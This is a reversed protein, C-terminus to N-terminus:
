KKGAGAAGEQCTGCIGHGTGNAQITACGSTLKGFESSNWSVDQFPFETVAYAGGPVAHITTGWARLGGALPGPASANCTGTSAVLITSIATPLGPTLTNSILDSITSLTKLHNPTLACTCCAIMQQDEAFVYVNACINGAPEMGGTTAANTLNVVSDAITLNSTYGVQIADKPMVTVTGSTATVCKGSYDCSLTNALHVTGGSGALANSLCITVQTQAGGNSVGFTVEQQDTTTPQGGCDFQTPPTALAAFSPPANNSSSVFDHTSGVLAVDWSELVTFTGDTTFSGTLRSNFGPSTDTPFSVNIYFSEASATLAGVSLFLAVLFRPM